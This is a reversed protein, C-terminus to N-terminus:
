RQAGAPPPAPTGAAGGGLAAVLGDLDRPARGSSADPLGLRAALELVWPVRLRARAALSPDGLVQAPDGQVVTGDLM